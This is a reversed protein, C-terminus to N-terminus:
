YFIPSLRELSWMTLNSTKAASSRDWVTNVREWACMLVCLGIQQFTQLPFFPLPFLYWQWYISSMHEQRPSGWEDPPQPPFSDAGTRTSCNAAPSIFNVAPTWTVCGSAHKSQPVLRESGVERLPLVRLSSPPWVAVSLLLASSLHAASVAQCAFIFWQYSTHRHSRGAPHYNPATQVPGKLLVPAPIWLSLLCQVLNSVCEM